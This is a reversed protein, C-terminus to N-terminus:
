FYSSASLLSISAETRDRCPVSNEWFGLSSSFPGKAGCAAQGAGENWGQSVRLLAWSQIWVELKCFQSSLFWYKKFGSVIHRYTIFCYFSSCPYIDRDERQWNPAMSRPLDHDFLHVYILLHHKSESTRSHVQSHLVPTFMLTYHLLLSFCHIWFFYGLMCKFYSLLIKSWM